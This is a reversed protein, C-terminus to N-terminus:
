NINHKKKFEAIANPKNDFAGLLMKQAHEKLEKDGGNKLLEFWTKVLVIPPENAKKEIAM